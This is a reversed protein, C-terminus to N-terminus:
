WSMSLMVKYRNNSVQVQRVKGFLGQKPMTSIDEVMNVRASRMDQVRFEERIYEMFPEAESLKLFIYEGLSPLPTGMAKAAEYDEDRYVYVLNTKAPETTRAMLSCFHEGMRAKLLCLEKFGIVSARATERLLRDRDSYDVQNMTKRLQEEFSMEAGGKAGTSTPDTAFM